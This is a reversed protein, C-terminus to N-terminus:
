AEVIENGSCLQTVQLDRLEEKHPIRFKEKKPGCINRFM